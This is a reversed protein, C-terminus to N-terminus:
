FKYIFNFYDLIRNVSFLPLTKMYGRLRKRDIKKKVDNLEYYLFNKLITLLPRCPHHCLSYQHCFKSSLNNLLNELPLFYDSM